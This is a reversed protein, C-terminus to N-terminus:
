RGAIGALEMAQYVLGEELAIEMVPSTQLLLRAVYVALVVGGAALVLATELSGKWRRGKEMWKRRIINRHIGYLFLILILPFVPQYGFAARVDMSLLAICARTTGCGPCPVGFLLRVPCQWVVALLLLAAGIVLHVWVLYGPRRKEKEKRKWMHKGNKKM